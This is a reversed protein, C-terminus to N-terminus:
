APKAAAALALLEAMKQHLINVAKLPRVMVKFHTVKGAENWTIIDVGNVVIGDVASEFELVASSVSRWTNRYRFDGTGLVHAAARLYGATIAKGRQPTFVVPSEFVVDDALLRDLLSFDKTRVCEHWLEIPDEM